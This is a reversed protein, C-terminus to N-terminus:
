RKSIVREFDSRMNSQIYSDSHDYCFQGFQTKMEEIDYLSLKRIGEVLSEEIIQCINPYKNQYYRALPMDTCLVPIKHSFADFISASVRYHYGEKFAILVCRANEFYHKYEDDAIWGSYVKLNGNDYNLDKSRLIIHYGEAKITQNLVENDYISKIYDQNNSTSIGICDFLRNNTYENVEREVPHPWCCTEEKAIKEETILYDRIFDELVCHVVKDKFFKFFIRKIKGKIGQGNLQDIENHHIVFIPIRKGLLTVVIPMSFHDFKGIVVADTKKSKIIRKAIRTNHIANFFIRRTSAKDFALEEAEYNYSVNETKKRYWNEPCLVTLESVKSLNEITKEDFYKHGIPYTLDYYLVKM